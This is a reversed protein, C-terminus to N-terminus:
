LGVPHILLGELVVWHYGEDALPLVKELGLGDTVGDTGATGAMGM